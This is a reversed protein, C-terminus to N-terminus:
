QILLVLLGSIFVSFSYLTVSASVPVTDATDTSGGNQASSGNQASTAETSGGNQASTAKTSGGNQASTAETSPIKESTTTDQPNTLPEGVKSCDSLPIPSVGEINGAPTYDCVWFVWDTFGQFPSNITCNAAGCGVGTTTDWISQTYHGCVQGGNCGNVTCNYYQVEDLWLNVAASASLYPTGAGAAINEGVVVTTKTLADYQTTRDANHQYTCLQAYNQAVTAANSDWTLASVGLSSRVNNQLTLITTEDNPGLGGFSLSILCAVVALIRLEM